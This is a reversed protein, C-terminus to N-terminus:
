VREKRIFISRARRSVDLGDLDSEQFGEIPPLFVRGKIREAVLWVTVYFLFFSQLWRSGPPYLSFACAAIGAIGFILFDLWWSDFLFFPPLNLLLGYLIRLSVAAFFVVAGQLLGGALKRM